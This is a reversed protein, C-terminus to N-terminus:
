AKTATSLLPQVIFRRILRRLADDGLEPREVYTLLMSQCQTLWLIVEDTTLDVALEGREAAQSLVGSWWARQLRYMSSSPSLSALQFEHNEVMRRIYVNRHATRVILLLTETLFEAFGERRTLKRRVEENVKLTERQSIQDLIAEKGAYYKYVTPRSVGAKGAIDEITTKGIGYQGFCAYAAGLIREQTTQEEGAGGRPETGGATRGGGRRARSLRGAHRDTM